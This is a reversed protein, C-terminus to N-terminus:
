TTVRPGAAGTDSDAAELRQRAETLATTARREATVDWAFRRIGGQATRHEDVRVIRDEPTKYEWSRDTGFSAVRDRIMTDIDVGGYNDDVFGQAAADSLAAELMEPYTIGPRFVPAAFLWEREFGKDWDVLRHDADFLAFSYAYEGFAM